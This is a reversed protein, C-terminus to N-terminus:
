NLVLHSPCTSLFPANWVIFLCLCNIVTNNYLVMKFKRFLSWEDGEEDEILQGYKAEAEYGFSHFKREDDLLVSTPAKLSVLQKSWSTNTKVAKPKDKFSFAYGSFTTGFDIAVVVPHNSNWMKNKDHTKM